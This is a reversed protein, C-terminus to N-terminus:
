TASTRRHLHIDRDQSLWAESVSITWVIDGFTETSLFRATWAYTQDIYNYILISLRPWEIKLSHILLDLTCFHAVTSSGVYSATSCSIPLASYGLVFLARSRVFVAAPAVVHVIHTYKRVMSQLTGPEQKAKDESSYNNCSWLSETCLLEINRKSRDQDQLISLVTTFSGSQVEPILM